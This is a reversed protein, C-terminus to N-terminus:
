DTKDRCLNNTDVRDLLEFLERSDRADLVQVPLADIVNGDRGLLSFTIQLSDLFDKVTPELRSAHRVGLLVVGETCGLLLKLSGERSIENSLTDILCTAPEVGQDDESRMQEIGSGPLVQNNRSQNQSTVPFLHALTQPIVWVWLLNQM